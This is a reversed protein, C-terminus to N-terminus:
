TGCPFCFQWENFGGVIRGAWARAHWLLTTLWRNFVSRQNFNNTTLPSPWSLIPWPLSREPSDDHLPLPDALIIIFNLRDTPSSGFNWWKQPALTIESLHIRVAAWQKIRYLSLYPEPLYETAVTGLILKNKWVFSVHFEFNISKQNMKPSICDRLRFCTCLNSRKIMIDMMWTYNHGGISIKIEKELIGAM